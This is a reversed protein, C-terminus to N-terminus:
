RALSPEKESQDLLESVGARGALSLPAPATLVPLGTRATIRERMNTGRFLRFRRRRTSGVVIVDAHWEHAAEVIRWDVMFCNALYHVGDAEVGNSRLSAVSDDVVAMAEQETEVSFGRGGILLENVHVVRVDAGGQRALATAFSVAAETSPTGDVALLIRNFMEPRVEEESFAPSM